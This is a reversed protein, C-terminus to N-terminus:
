IFLFMSEIFKSVKSEGAPPTSSLSVRELQLFFVFPITTSTSETFLVAAVKALVTEVNSPVTEVKAVVTAVDATLLM